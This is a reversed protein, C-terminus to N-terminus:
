RCLDREDGCIPNRPQMPCTLFVLWCLLARAEQSHMTSSCGRGPMKSAWINAQMPVSSHALRSQKPLSCGSVRCPTNLEARHKLLCGAFSANVVCPVLLLAWFSCAKETENIFCEVALGQQSSRNSCELISCECAPGCEFTIHDESSYPSCCVKLTVLNVLDRCSAKCCEPFCPKRAKRIPPYDRCPLSVVSRM